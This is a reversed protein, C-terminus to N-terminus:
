IDPCPLTRLCALGAMKCQDQFNCVALHHLFKCRLIRADVKGRFSASVSGLFGLRKNPNLVLAKKCLETPVSAM